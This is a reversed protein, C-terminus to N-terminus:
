VPGPDVCGSWMLAGVSAGNLGYFHVSQQGHREMSHQYSALERWEMCCPNMLYTPLLGLLKCMNTMAALMDSINVHQRWWQHLFFFFSLLVLTNGIQWFHNQALGDIYAKNMLNSTINTTGRRRRLEAQEEMLSSGDWFSFRSNVGGSPVSENTPVGEEARVLSEMSLVGWRLFLRTLARPTTLLLWSNITLFIM